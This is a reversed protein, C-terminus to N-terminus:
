NRYYTSPKIYQIGEWKPSLLHLSHPYSSSRCKRHLYILWDFSASLKMIRWFRFLIILINHFIRIARQVVRKNCGCHDCCGCWLVCFILFIIVLDAFGSKVHLIHWMYYGFDDLLYVPSCCFISTTIKNCSFHQKHSALQYPSSILNEHEIECVFTLTCM